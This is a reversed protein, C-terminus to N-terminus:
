LVFMLKLTIEIHYHPRCHAQQVNRNSACFDYLTKRQHTNCKLYQYRYTVWFIRSLVHFYVVGSEFGIMDLTDLLLITDLFSASGVNLGGLGGCITRLIAYVCQRKFTQIKKMTIKSKSVISGVLVLFWGFILRDLISVAADVLCHIRNWSGVGVYGMYIIFILTHSDINSNKSLKLWFNIRVACWM